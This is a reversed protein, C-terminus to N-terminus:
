GAFVEYLLKISVLALAVEILIYFVRESMWNVIRAGSWAGALAMPALWVSQGFSSLTIQEALIYPPVKMLNICAFLITTTGLYTLKELKQPLVYVQFPPGGSHAIYSTLGTLTGWFMGRPVDAPKTPRESKRARNILSNTIYFIGVGALLFKVANGSVHAVSFYGLLVGIFASPILIKLNRVSFAKRFLYVAYCDAVLYLPLLLGAAHAPDMFLAMLPVSLIAIIPM